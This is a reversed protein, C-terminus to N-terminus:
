KVVFNAIRGKVYIFKIIQKGETHAKINEQNLAVIRVQEDTAEIAVEIEARLKGNVQLAIKVTDNVLLSTDLKPWNDIHVSNEHGLDRWLEEAIHPAFPAVLQVISELGFRWSKTASFGSEEKAKYMGNVCEMMASVATNYKILEIDNTVKQITKHVLKDLENLKNDTQSEESELFEQVLNWIRNLFRYCSPLGESSWPSEIAPPAIFMIYTRLADAGYGSNIVELPDIGNGKSKSFFTGDAALIKAHFYMKKFPEPDAVLGKKYFYRTFFRAYLLHATAHDGGNYFDVPLWKEARKPEWAKQANNPDIYRLQYWSSCVYGDMTDTERKAPQGCQPCDVNVWDTANALPSKGDGSPQYDTIEPLEVPL